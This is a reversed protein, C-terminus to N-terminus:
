SPGRGRRPPRRSSPPVCKISRRRTASRTTSGLAHAGAAHDDCPLTPGGPTRTTRWARPSTHSRRRTYAVARRAEENERNRRQKRSEADLPDVTGGDNITTRLTNVDGPEMGNDSCHKDYATAVTNCLDEPYEAAAKTRWIWECTADDWIMGICSPHWPHDPQGPCLSELVQMWPANNLWATPKVYKAGFCCQDGVSWRVGAISALRKM